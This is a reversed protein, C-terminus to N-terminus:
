FDRSTRDHIFGLKWCILLSVVVFIVGALASLWQQNLLSFIVFGAGLVNCVGLIFEAIEQGRTQERKKTPM